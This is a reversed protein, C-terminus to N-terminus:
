PMRGAIWLLVGFICVVGIALCAVVITGQQLQVSMDGLVRGVVTWKQQNDARVNRVEGLLVGQMGEVHALRGDTKSQHRIVENLDRDIKEIATGQVSVTSAIEDIRSNVEALAREHATRELFQTREDDSM